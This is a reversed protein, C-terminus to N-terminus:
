TEPTDFNPSLSLPPKRPSGFVAAAARLSPTPTAPSSFLFQSFTAPWGWAPKAGFFRQARFLAAARFVRKAGNAAPTAPGISSWDPDEILGVQDLQGLQEAQVGVRGHRHGWHLRRQVGYGCRESICGSFHSALRYAPNQAAPMEQSIGATVAM